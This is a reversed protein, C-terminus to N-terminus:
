AAKKERDLFGEPLQFGFYGRANRFSVDRVLAGLL